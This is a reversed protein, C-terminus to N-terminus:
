SGDISYTFLYHSESFSTEDDDHDNGFDSILDEVGEGSGGGEEDNGSVQARLRSAPGEGV